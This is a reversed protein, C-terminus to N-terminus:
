FPGNLVNRALKFGLFLSLSLTRFLIDNILMTYAWIKLKYYNKAYENLNAVYLQSVYM